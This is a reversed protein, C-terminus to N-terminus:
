RCGEVLATTPQASPAEVLWENVFLQQYVDGKLIKKIDESNHRNRIELRRGIVRCGECTEQMPLQVAFYNYKGSLVQITQEPGMLYGHVKAGPLLFRYGEDVARFNCPTWVDKGKVYQQAAFSFNGSVSDIPHLFAALSLMVLLATVSVLDRSFRASFLGLLIFSSTLLLLLIWGVGYLNGVEQQLHFSLYALLLLILASAVFSAIFFPRAIRQWNLACLIAVAPMAELLYRATRQSPLCFVLFLSAMWIWLMKEDDAMLLRRRYAVFFLGIVPFALLGANMPYGLVLAWISSGGWLMTAFYSGESASFKGANEGLVFERWIAQPDPDFVFWLSFIALALFLSIAVKWADKLLFEKFRYDRQYWYWWSLALAIPVILAFSKYLLGVGIEVGLLLPILLRSDFAFKRWYLLTFFPLFFWFVEPPNVLFPRGYRYSSFFALFILAAIFGIETPSTNSTRAQQEAIKRALLFILLATLLTYIVSPYRLNWWTWESGWHTSAIGQWFLLPPKTNRMHDLQSQLPLLHGSDATLRTIHAYPFEDGINPIHPSDIGYFYAFIALLASLIYRTFKLANM